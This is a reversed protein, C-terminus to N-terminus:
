KKDKDIIEQEPEVTEEQNTQTEESNAEGPNQQTNQEYLKNQLEYFKTEVEKTKEELEDFKKDKLLKELEDASAKLDDLLSQDVKEKTKDDNISKEISNILSEASNILKAEKKFKEDEDKHDEADKVAKEIEDDSMNNNSKITIAQEKQTDQDKASVHMIGNADISFKVEIKPVGRPATRIDSLTFRGLTKNDSARPREGQVVHIDVSPQNDQATTFTQSKEVPITTNRDIISTSVNGMTEIGLTLPTVDLLLIDKVDGALVGGQIAAGDAVVEDPNISKNPTKNTEKKVIKQIYPIRTSGGVLLVENLDIAKIKADKLAKRIPNVTKEALDHILKEFAARTIKTEFHIPQGDKMTLFPLSITADESQSLTKKCKEAEEKIRQLAAKDNTLDISYQKKIEKLIFDVLKEDFDDGGLHNNGATSLVEFTGDSIDLISVDFTGGGLDYVLIKQEKTKKDIGYALAAATPENIIREVTLGAIKGADKTAQRQADDFYAPVTIIAKTVKEGLYEETYSKLYQLIMASIQEPLYKKGNLEVKKHSGMERKISVITDLNTLAQRKAAGGVLRKGDKFSVVSPTTRNGDPNVIIKSKGNEMIAVCSNTTGLDIGIIKNSDKM